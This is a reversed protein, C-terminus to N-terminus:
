WVKSGVSLKRGKASMFEVAPQACFSGEAPNGLRARHRARRPVPRRKLLTASASRELSGECLRRPASPIPAPGATGSPNPIRGSRPVRTGFRLRHRDDQLLKNACHLKPPWSVGCCEIARARRLCNDRCVAPDVVTWVSCNTFPYPAGAQRRGACITLPPPTPLRSEPTIKGPENNGGGRGADSGGGKEKM